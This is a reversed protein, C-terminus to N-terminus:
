SVYSQPNNPLSNNGHLYLVVPGRQLAALWAPSQTAKSADSVQGSTSLTAPKISPTLARPWVWEVLLKDHNPHGPIHAEARLVGSPLLLGPIHMDTIYRVLSVDRPINKAGSRLMMVATEFALNWTPRKPAGTTCQSVILATHM